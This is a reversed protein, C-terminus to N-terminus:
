PPPGVPDAGLELLLSVVSDAAADAAFHLATSHPRATQVALLMAALGAEGETARVHDVM